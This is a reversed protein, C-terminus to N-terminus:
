CYFIYYFICWYFVEFCSRGLYNSVDLLNKGSFQKLLYSFIFVILFALLTILISIILSASKGNHYIIQSTSFIIGNITIIVFFAIAEINELKENIMLNFVGKM